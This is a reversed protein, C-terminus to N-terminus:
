AAVHFPSPTAVITKATANVSRNLLCDDDLVGGGGGGGGDDHDDDDIM